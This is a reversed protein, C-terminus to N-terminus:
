LQIVLQNNNLEYDLENEELFEVAEEYYDVIMKLDDTLEFAIAEDMYVPHLNALLVQLLGSQEKNLKM